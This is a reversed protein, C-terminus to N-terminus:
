SVDRETVVVPEFDTRVFAIVRCAQEALGLDLCDLFTSFLAQGLARREAPQATAAHRIALAVLRGLFFDRRDPDAELDPMALLQDDM